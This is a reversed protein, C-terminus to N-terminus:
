WWSKKSEKKEHQKKAERWSDKYPKEHGSPPSYKNNFVSEFAGQRTSSKFDKAAKSQARDTGKGM